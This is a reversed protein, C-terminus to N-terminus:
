SPVKTLLTEGIMLGFFDTFSVPQGQRRKELVREIYHYLSTPSLLRLPSRSIAERIEQQVERMPVQPWKPHSYLTSTFWSSGSLSAVYSVCDLVKTEELAVMAGSFATLARFGGGSGM